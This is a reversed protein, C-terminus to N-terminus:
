LILMDRLLFVSLILVQSYCHYGPPFTPGLPPPAHTCCCSASCWRMPMACSLFLRNCRRPCSPCNASLDLQCQLDEEITLRSQSVLYVLPVRYRMIHRPPAEVRDVFFYAVRPFLTRQRLPSPYKTTEPLLYTAVMTLVCTDGHLKGEPKSEVMDDTKM